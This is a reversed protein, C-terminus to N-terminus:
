KFYPKTKNCRIKEGVEKAKAILETDYKDIGKQLTLNLTEKIQMQLLRALGNIIDLQDQNFIMTKKIEKM